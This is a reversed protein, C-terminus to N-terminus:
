KGALVGALMLETGASTSRVRVRIEDIKHRWIPERDAKVIPLLWKM